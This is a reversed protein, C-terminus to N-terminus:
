KLAVGAVLGGLLILEMQEHRMSTHEGASWKPALTSWLM